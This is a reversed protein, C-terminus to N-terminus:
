LFRHIFFESRLWAIPMPKWASVSLSAALAFITPKRLMDARPLNYVFLICTRPELRSSQGAFATMLYQPQWNCIYERGRASSRFSARGSITPPRRPATSVTVFPGAIGSYCLPPAFSFLIFTPFVWPSLPFLHRAVLRGLHVGSAAKAPTSNLNGCSNWSSSHVSSAPTLLCALRSSVLPLPLFAGGANKARWSISM